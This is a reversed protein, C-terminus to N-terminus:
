TTLGTNNILKDLVSDITTMLRCAANYAKAYMMLNMAEDNFDVSSVSARSTDISVQSAYFNDLQKSAIQQDNGLIAGMNTWMQELTGVFMSDHRVGDVGEYHITDPRFELDKYFLSTLNNVINDSDSSAPETFGTPCVFSSVIQVANEAWDLSVSINTATIPPDDDNGNGNNSFLNGGRFAGATIEVPKGDADKYETGDLNKVTQTSNLYVIVDPIKAGNEDLIANGKADKKVYDNDTLWQKTADPVKSMDWEKPSLMDSKNLTYDGPLKIAQSEMAGTKQPGGAPNWVQTVIDGTPSTLYGQNAKNMETAFTHALLDLSKQYYPIGRKTIANEDINAVTDQSSFEGAETLLERQSQLKGYLDNDDLKVASSPVKEYVQKIYTPEGRAADLDNTYYAQIAAIEAPTPNAPDAPAAPPPNGRQDYKVYRYGSIVAPNYNQNVKPTWAKAYEDTGVGTLVPTGDANLMPNGAADFQVELYKGTAPYNPDIQDAPKGFNPNYHYVKAAQQADSTGTGSSTLYPYATTSGKKWLPNRAIDDSLQKIYTTIKIAGTAEDVETTAKGGSQEFEEPTIVTKTPEGITFLLRGNRDKLESVTIDFNQVHAAEAYTATATGDAKLYLLGDNAGTKDYDPNENTVLKADAENATPNGDKDLYLNNGDYAPDTPDLLSAPNRQPVQARAENNTLTGDAEMYKYAKKNLVADISLQSSYIGDILVTEDTHVSSDPNANDLKIILKEVEAGVGIKETSYSVDIKIYESLQDILLNREDRMELADDGSIDAQRINENLNRINTLITNVQSVNQEFMTVTSKYQEELGRGYSRMMDALNKCAAKVQIDYENHGTEATLNNLADFVKRFEAALIGFEKGETIEGGKGTEDLVGAIRSLGELLADMAGVDATKSRYQIDLYPDRLQSLGHCLVGQGVKVGTTSYYRDAGANYLSKQDLRQRTYGSTNVNAINNGTVTLGIQSAYLALRAQTFSGFTGIGM